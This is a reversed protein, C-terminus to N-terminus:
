AVWLGVQSAGTFQQAGFLQPVLMGDGDFTGVICQQTPATVQVGLRFWLHYLCSRDEM